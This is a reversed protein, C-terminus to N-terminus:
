DECLNFGIYGLSELYEGDYECEANEDIGRDPDFNLIMDVVADNLNDKDSDYYFSRFSHNVKKEEEKKNEENIYSVRCKETIRILM